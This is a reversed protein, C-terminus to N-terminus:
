KKFPNMGYENMFIYALRLFVIVAVWTRKSKWNSPNLLWAFAKKTLKIIHAM